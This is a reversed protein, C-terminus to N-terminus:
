SDQDDDISELTKHVVARLAAAAEQADFVFRRIDFSIRRRTAPTTNTFTERLVVHLGDALGPRTEACNAWDDLGRVVQSATQPDALLNDVM